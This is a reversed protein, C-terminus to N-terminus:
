KSKGEKLGPLARKYRQGRGEKSLVMFRFVPTGIEWRDGRHREKLLAIASAHSHHEM